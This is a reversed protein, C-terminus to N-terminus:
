MARLKPFHFCWAFTDQHQSSGHRGHRQAVLFGHCSPPSRARPIAARAFAVSSGPLPSQPNARAAAHSRHTWARKGRRVSVATEHDSGIALLLAVGLLVYLIAVVCVGVLLTALQATSM